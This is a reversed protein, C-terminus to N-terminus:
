FGMLMCAGTPTSVSGAVVTVTPSVVDDITVTFTGTGTGSVGLTASTNSTRTWTGATVSLTGTVNTISVASGSTWTTGTGTFALLVSPVATFSIATSNYTIPSGAISLTGSQPSQKTASTLTVSRNGTTSPTITFTGTTQGSAITVPSTTVTDGGVSDTIVCSVGGSEAAHDLTITFNTSAVGDTGSTPGSLTATTPSAATSNYTIPSGAISLSPTTTGLTINRNGTTSPTITFTGTTQGSAIVVPSTTVTDGGVSSSVPCSVGGSQAAHDLTITFNTSAVGVTGSTPGTLTATTPPTAPYAMAGFGPTAGPWATGAADVTSTDGTWGTASVASNTPVYGARVWALLGTSAQGILAPNAAITALAGAVTAVGGGATTGGWGALNRTSDVFGPDQDALDNAGAYATSVNMQYGNGAFSYTNGSYTSPEDTYIKWSANYDMGIHSGIDATGGSAPHGSDYVKYSAGAVKTSNWVLNAKYAALTGAYGAGTEGVAAGPQSGAYVTNHVANLLVHNVTGFLTFLVGAGHNTGATPLTICNQITWSTAASTPNGLMFCDGTGDSSANTDEFIFGSIVTGDPTAAPINVFHQNVAANGAIYFDQCTNQVTVNNNAGATINVFNRAASNWSLSTLAYYAGGFYNDTIDLSTATNVVMALDFSNFSLTRTGSTAVNKTVILFCGATVIAANGVSSSFTCHSVTCNGDWTSYNGLQISANCATFTCNTWSLTANAVVNNDVGGVVGWNASTGINVFDTYTATQVGENYGNAVTFYTALSGSNSLNTSVTCHSGSSGNAILICNNLTNKGFAWVYQASAAPFFVISTGASMTVTSNAGNHYLNGQVTLTGGTIALSGGTSLAIAATGTIGVTVPQTGVTQNTSVTVANTIVVTDGSGPVGGTGSGTLATWPHGVTTSSWDGSNSTTMAAM